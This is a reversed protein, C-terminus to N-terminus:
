NVDGEAGEVCVKIHTKCPLQIIVFLYVLTCCECHLWTGPTAVLVRVSSQPQAPCSGLLGLVDCLPLVADSGLTSSLVKLIHLRSSFCLISSYRHVCLLHILFRVIV